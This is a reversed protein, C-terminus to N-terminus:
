LEVANKKNNEVCFFQQNSYNHLSQRSILSNQAIFTLSLFGFLSDIEDSVSRFDQLNEINISATNAKTEFFRM